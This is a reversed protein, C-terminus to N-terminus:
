WEKLDKAVEQIIDEEIKVIKRGFGALLSLDCLNNIM